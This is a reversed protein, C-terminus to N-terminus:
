PEVDVLDSLKRHLNECRQSRELLDIEVVILQGRDISSKEVVVRPQLVDVQLSVLDVGNLAVEQVSIMMEAGQVHASINTGVVVPGDATRSSSVRNTLPQVRTM